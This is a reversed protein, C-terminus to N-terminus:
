GSLMSGEEWAELAAVDHPNLFPAVEGLAGVRATAAGLRKAAVKAIAALVPHPSQVLPVLDDALEAAHLEAACVAAFARPDITRARRDRLIERLVAIARESAVLAGGTRYGSPHLGLRGAAAASGLWTRTAALLPEVDPEIPGEGKQEGDLDLAVRHAQEEAYLELHAMLRDLPVTGSARGVLKEDKQTEITVISWLTTPTGQDRGHVMDVHVRKLASWRLVRPEGEPQVLIGWPVIAMPVPQGGFRRALEQMGGRKLAVAGTLAALAILTLGRPTAGHWLGAGLTAAGLASAWL